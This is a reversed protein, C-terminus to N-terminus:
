PSFLRLIMGEPFCFSMLICGLHVCSLSISLYFFYIYVWIYVFIGIYGLKKHDAGTQTLKPEDDVLNNESAWEFVVNGEEGHIWHAGLELVHDGQIFWNCPFLPWSKHLYVSIFCKQKIIIQYHYPNNQFWFCYTYHTFIYNCM